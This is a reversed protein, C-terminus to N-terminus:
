NTDTQCPSKEMKAAVYTPVGTAARVRSAFEAEDSNADSLHLLHIERCSSLDNAKLMDILREISMHTRVTRRYRERDVSGSRVSEKILDSSYNAEVAIGTLGDFTYKSYASDTLYLWRGRGGGESNVVFGLTGPCDHVAPFAVVLWHGVPSPGDALAYARHHHRVGLQDWTECSAFCDVGRELLVKAGKAHDGHAHSILCGSLDSLSLGRRWLAEQIAKGSLGAEILLSRGLEDTLLYCCGASSSALADFRM